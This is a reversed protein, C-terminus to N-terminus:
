LCPVFLNSFFFLFFFCALVDFSFDKFPQQNSNLLFIGKSKRYLEKISYLRKLIFNMNNFLHSGHVFYWAVSEFFTFLGVKLNRSSPMKMLKTNPSWRLCSMRCIASSVILWKEIEWCGAHLYIESFVYGIFSLVLSSCSCHSACMCTHIFFICSCVYILWDWILSQMFTYFALCTETYQRRKKRKALHFNYLYSCYISFPLWDLPHVLCM